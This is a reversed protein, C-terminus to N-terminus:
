WDAPPNNTRACFSSKINTSSCGFNVIRQFNNNRLTTACRGIKALMECKAHHFERM